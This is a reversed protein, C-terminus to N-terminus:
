RHSNFNKRPGDVKAASTNFYYLNPAPLPLHKQKQKLKQGVGIRSYVFFTLKKIYNLTHMAMAVNDNM